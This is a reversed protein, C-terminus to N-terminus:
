ITRNHTSMKTRASSRPWKQENLSKFRFHDRNELDEAKKQLLHTPKPHNTANFPDSM